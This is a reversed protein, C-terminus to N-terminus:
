KKLCDRNMEPMKDYILASWGIGFLKCLVESRLVWSSLPRSGIM